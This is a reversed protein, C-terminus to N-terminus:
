NLLAFTNNKPYVNICGYLDENMSVNEFAVGLNVGNISFSLIEDVIHVGIITGAPYGANGEAHYPVSQQNNRRTGDKLYLGWSNPTSGLWLGRRPFPMTAVGVWAYPAQLSSVVLKVHFSVNRSICGSKSLPPIFAITTDTSGDIRTVTRGNDSIEWRSPTIATTIDWRRIVLYSFIIAILEKPLIALTSEQRKLALSILIKAKKLNYVDKLYLQNDVFNDDKKTENENDSNNSSCEMPMKMELANNNNNDDDDEVGVSMIDPFKVEDDTPQEALM